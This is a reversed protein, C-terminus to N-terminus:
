TKVSKWTQCPKLCWLRLVMKRSHKVQFGKPLIGSGDEKVHIVLPTYSSAPPRPHYDLMNVLKRVNEWQSATGLKTENAYADLTETLVHASRVFGRSINLLMDDTEGEYQSQLRELKQNHNEDTEISVDLEAWTPFREALRQRVDELFTAANGDIYRFRSLGARNWRTLDTKDTM